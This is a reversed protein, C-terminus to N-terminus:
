TDYFESSAKFKEIVSLVLIKTVAVSNGTFQILYILFQVLCKFDCM